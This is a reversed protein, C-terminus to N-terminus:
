VQLGTAESAPVPDPKPRPLELTKESDDRRLRLRLPELEPAERLIGILDAIERVERGNVEVIVDGETIEAPTSESTSLVVLGEVDDREGWELGFARLRGPVGGPSYLFDPIKSLLAESVFIPVELRLALAMADSPRSDISFSEGLVEGPGDRRGVLSGFYTHGEIKEVRVAEIRLNSADLISKMLDHTMPRPTAIGELALAIAQAEAPGIWIPLLRGTTQEELVVVPSGAMRDLGLTAIEARVFGAPTEEAMAGVCSGVVLGSLLVWRIARM